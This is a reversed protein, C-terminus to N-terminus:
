GGKAPRRTTRSRDYLEGCYDRSTFMEGTSGEENCQYIFTERQIKEPDWAELVFAAFTVLIAAAVMIRVAVPNM